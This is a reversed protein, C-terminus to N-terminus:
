AIHPSPAANDTPTRPALPPDLRTPAADAMEGLGKAVQVSAAMDGSRHLAEDCGAAVVGQAREHFGGTLAHMGLDDSMLFGDFGIRGRIIDGIVGPSLSAPREADWATYVVHSTMGM